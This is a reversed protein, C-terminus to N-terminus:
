LVTEAVFGYGVLQSPLRDLKVPSASFSLGNIRVLPSLQIIVKTLPPSVSNGGQPLTSGNSKSLSVLHSITGSIFVPSVRLIIPLTM